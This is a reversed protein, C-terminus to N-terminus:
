SDQVEEKQRLPEQRVLLRLVVWGILTAAPAVIFINFLVTFPFILSFTSNIRGHGAFLHFFLGGYIYLDFGLVAMSGFVAAKEFPRLMSVLLCLGQPHMLLVLLGLEVGGTYLQFFGHLALAVLAIRIIYTRPSFTSGAWRLGTLFLIGGIPMMLLAANSLRVNLEVSGFWGYLAVLFLVVGAVLLALSVVLRIRAAM